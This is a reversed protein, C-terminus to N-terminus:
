GTPRQVRRNTGHARPLVTFARRGLEAAGNRNATDSAKGATFDVILYAGPRYALLQDLAPIWQAGEDGSKADGVGHVPRPLTAPRGTSFQSMETVRNDFRQRNNQAQDLTVGVKVGNANFHCQLLQPTGATSARLKPAPAPDARAVIGQVTKAPIRACRAATSPSSKATTSASPTGGSGGGCGALAASAVLPAVARFRM